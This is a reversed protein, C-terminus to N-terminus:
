YNNSKTTYYHNLAGSSDEYQEITVRDGYDEDEDEDYRAVPLNELWSTESTLDSSAALEASVEDLLECAKDFEEADGFGTQFGECVLQFKSIISLARQRMARADALLTDYRLRMVESSVRDKRPRESNLSRMSSEISNLFKSFDIESLGYKDETKTMICSQFTRSNPARLESTNPYFELSRKKPDM